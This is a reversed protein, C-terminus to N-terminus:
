LPVIIVLSGDLIDLEESGHWARLLASRPILVSQTNSDRLADASGPVKIGDRLASLRMVKSRGERSLAQLCRTQRFCVQCHGKYAKPGNLTIRPSTFAPAPKSTSASWGPFLERAAVTGSKALRSSPGLAAHSSSFSNTDSQIERTSTCKQARVRLAPRLTVVDRRACRLSKRM